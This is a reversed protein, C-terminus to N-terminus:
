DVLILVNPIKHRRMGKSIAEEVWSETNYDFTEINMANLIWYYIPASRYKLPGPTKKFKLNVSEFAFSEILVWRADQNTVGIQVVNTLGQLM